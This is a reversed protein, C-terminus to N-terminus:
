ALQFIPALPVISCAASMAAPPLTSLGCAYPETCIHTGAELDVIPL